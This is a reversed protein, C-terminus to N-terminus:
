NKSDQETEFESNWKFENSPHDAEFDFMVEHM